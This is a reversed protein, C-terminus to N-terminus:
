RVSIPFTCFTSVSAVRSVNTFFNLLKCRHRISPLPSSTNLGGGGGGFNRLGGLITGFEVWNHFSNFIISNLVGFGLSTRYFLLLITFSGDTRLQKVDVIVFLNTKM